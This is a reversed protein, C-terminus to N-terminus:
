RAPERSRSRESRQPAPAPAPTAQPDFVKFAAPNNQREVARTVSAKSDERLRDFKIVEWTNRDVTKRETRIIEGRDDRVKVDVEVPQRGKFAVAVKEGPGAGSAELARPLDVGWVKSTHGKEDMLTVYPTAREGLRDQYPATGVEVLTGVHVREGTLRENAIAVARAITDPADGRHRMTAEMARVFQDQGATLPPRPEARGDEIVPDISRESRQARATKPEAEPAEREPALSREARIEDLRALDLKTPRYGTVDLDRLNAQLWAERRFDKTGTLKLTSWGQAEALDIMAGVVAPTEHLTLIKNDRTEFAVDNRDRFHYKDDARLYRRELGDLLMRRREEDPGDPKAEIEVKSETAKPAAKAAPPETGLGAMEEPREAGNIKQSPDLYAEPVARRRRPRGPEIGNILLLQREAERFAPSPAVYDPVNDYWVKIALQPDKELLPDFARHARIQDGTTLKRLAPEEQDYYQWRVQKLRDAAEAALALVEPDFTKEKPEAM